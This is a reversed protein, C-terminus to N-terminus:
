ATGNGEFRCPGRRRRRLGRHRGGRFRGGRFRCRRVWPDGGGVYRRRFASGRGVPALIGESGGGGGPLDDVLRRGDRRGLAELVRRGDGLTLLHKLSPDHSVDRLGRVPQQVALDVGIARDEIMALVLATTGVKLYTSIEALNADGIIVHLRRYRSPPAHPEDRTNLIPRRQTTQIGETTEFFDARQTLQFGAREGHQGIGVRGAGTLIARSVLFAPLAARIRERYAAAAAVSTVPPQLNPMVIARAFVRASHPAVAPADGWRAPPPALRRPPTHHPPRAFEDENTGLSFSPRQM